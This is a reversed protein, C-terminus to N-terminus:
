RIQVDAAETIGPVDAKLGRLSQVVAYGFLGLMGFFLTNDLTETLFQLSLGRNLIPLILSCIVLIIDVLIAQMVNLRIFRSIRENRAVGLYLLLFLLMGGFPITNVLQAYVQIAPLLPLFIVQLFQFQKLLPEEFGYLFLDFLPLLYPLAGFVRDSVPINSGNLNV